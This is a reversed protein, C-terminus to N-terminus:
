IQCQSSKQEPIKDTYFFHWIDLYKKGPHPFTFSSPNPIDPFSFSTRRLSLLQLFPFKISYYYQVIMNMAPSCSSLTWDPSIAFYKSKQMFIIEQNCSIVAYNNGNKCQCWQTMIHSMHLFLLMDSLSAFLPLHPLYIQTKKEAPALKQAM